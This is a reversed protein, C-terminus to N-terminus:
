RKSLDIVLYNYGKRHCWEMADTGNTFIEIWTWKSGGITNPMGIRPATTRVIVEGGTDILVVRRKTNKISQIAREPCLEANMIIVKAARKCSAFTRVKHKGGDHKLIAIYEPM